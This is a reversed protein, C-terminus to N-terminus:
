FEPRKGRIEKIWKKNLIDEPSKGTVLYINEFGLKFIKEAEDEGKIEEGLSSDIYITSDKDFNTHNEIFDNVSFFKHLDINKKSAEIEWLKHILSDDDILICTKIQM